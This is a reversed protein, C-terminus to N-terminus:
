STLTCKITIGPGEVKYKAMETIVAHLDREVTRVSIELEPYDIVLVRCACHMAYVMQFGNCKGKNKKMEKKM